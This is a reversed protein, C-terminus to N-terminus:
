DIKGEDEGDRLYKLAGSPCRDITAAVDEPSAAEPRIWRKKRVDFVAPLTRVCVGSHKCVEPDFTVTIGTAPYTQRRSTRESM